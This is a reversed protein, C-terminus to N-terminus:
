PDCIRQHLEPLSIGAPAIPVFVIAIQRREIRIEPAAPAGKGIGTPSVGKAGDLGAGVRPAVEDVAPAGSVNVKGQETRSERLAEDSLHIEFAVWQQRVVGHEPRDRVRLRRAPKNCREVEVGAYREVCQGIAEIDNQAASAGRQKLVFQLSVLRHYLREVVQLLGGRLRGTGIDVDTEQRALGAKLDEGIVQALRHDPWLGFALTDADLPPYEITCAGREPICQD